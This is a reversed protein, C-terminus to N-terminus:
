KGKPKPPPRRPAVALVEAAEKRVKASPDHMDRGARSLHSKAPKRPKQAMNQGWILGSGGYISYGKQEELL